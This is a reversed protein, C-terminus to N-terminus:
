AYPIVSVRVDVLQVIKWAEFFLKLLEARHSHFRDHIQDIGDRRAVRILIVRFSGPLCRSNPGIPNAEFVHAAKEGRLPRSSEYRNDELIGAVHRYFKM